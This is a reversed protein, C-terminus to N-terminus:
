FSTRSLLLGVWSDEEAREALLWGFREYARTVEPAEGVQLGSLILHAQPRGALTDLAPAAGILHAGTLNALVLHWPGSQETAVDSLALTVVECVHNLEVNERASQLADPDNDIARVTAAGLQAAAVALVASGTGVDLVSAGQLATQQLLALCLRTSAHHGTGFGMSPRIFLLRPDGPIDGPKTGYVPVVVIDGVRVPTLAEQTREAWQEDDVDAYTVSLGPLESALRMAARDRADGSAFFVRAGFATDEVATPADDDLTLLLHDRETDSPPASWSIDLAPYIRTM